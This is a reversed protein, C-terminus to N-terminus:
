YKQRFSENCSHQTKRQLLKAPLGHLVLRKFETRMQAPTLKIHRSSMITAWEATMKDAVTGTHPLTDAYNPDIDTVTQEKDWNSIRRLLQRMDRQTVRLYHGKDRRANHQQQQAYQQIM